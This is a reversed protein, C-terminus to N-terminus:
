QTEVSYGIDIYEPRHWKFTLLLNMLYILILIFIAEVGSCIFWIEGFITSYIPKHRISIIAFLFLCMEIASIPFISDANWEVVGVVFYSTNFPEYARFKKRSSHLYNSHMTWIEFLFCIRSHYKDLWGDYIQTSFTWVVMWPHGNIFADIHVFPLRNYNHLYSEVLHITTLILRSKLKTIIPFQEFGELM